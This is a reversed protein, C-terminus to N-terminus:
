WCWRPPMTEFAVRDILGETTETLPCALVLYDTRSLATEFKPGDFGVVDDTPGGKPPRTGPLRDDRRRVPRSM